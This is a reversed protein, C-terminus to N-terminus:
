CRSGPGVANIRMESTKKLQEPSRSTNPAKAARAAPLSPDYSDTNSHSHLPDVRIEPKRWKKDWQDQTAETRTPM